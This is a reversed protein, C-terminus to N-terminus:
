KIVFLPMEVQLFFYPPMEIGPSFILPCRYVRLTFFTVWSLPVDMSLGCNYSVGPARLIIFQYVQTHDLYNQNQIFILENDTESDSSSDESHSLTGYEKCYLYYYYHGILDTSIYDLVVCKTQHDFLVQEVVM